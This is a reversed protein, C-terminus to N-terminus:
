DPDRDSNYLIINTNDSRPVPPPNCPPRLFAIYLSGRCIYSLEIDDVFKLYKILNNILDHQARQLGLRTIKKMNRACPIKILWRIDLFWAVM